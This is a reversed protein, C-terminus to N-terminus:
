RKEWDVSEVGESRASNKVYVVGFDGDEGTARPGASASRRPQDREQLDHSPSVPATQGRTLNSPSPPSRSATMSAFLQQDFPIDPGNVKDDQESTRLEESDGQGEGPAADEGMVEEVDKKLEEEEEENEEGHDIVRKGEHRQGGDLSGSGDGRNERSQRAGDDDYDISLVDAAGPVSVALPAVAAEEGADSTVGGADEFDDDYSNRELSLAEAVGPISVAVPAAEEEEGTDSTEAGGDEFDDDYSTSELGQDDYIAVSDTSRDQSIEFSVEPKPVTATPTRRRTSPRVPTRPQETYAEFGEGYEERSTGMYVQRESDDGGYSTLARSSAGTYVHREPADSERPGVYVSREALDASQSANYPQRADAEAVGGAEFEEHEVKKWEVHRAEGDDTSAGDDDYVSAGEAGDSKTREAGAKEDFADGEGRLHQWSQGSGTSRSGEEAEEEEGSSRYGSDEHEIRTESTFTIEGAKGEMKASQGETGIAAASGEDGTPRDGSSFGAKILKMRRREQMGRARSQIKVVSEEIQRRKQGPLEGREKAFAVKRRESLGRARQQIKIAARKEEDGGGFHHEELGIPSADDHAVHGAEGEEPEDGQATEDEFAGGALLEERSETQAPIPPTPPRPSTGREDEVEQGKVDDVEEQDGEEKEKENENEEEEREEEKEDEEEKERREEKEDEEEEEEEEQQQQEKQSPPPTSVMPSHMSAQSAMHEREDEMVTDLGGM